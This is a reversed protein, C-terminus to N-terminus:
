GVRCAIRSKAKERNCQTALKNAYNVSTFRSRFLLYYIYFLFEKFEPQRVMAPVGTRCAAIRSVRHHPTVPWRAAVKEPNRRTSAQVAPM